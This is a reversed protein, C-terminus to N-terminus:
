AGNRFHAGLIGPWDPLPQLTSVRHMGAAAFRAFADEAADTFDLGPVVVPSCADDLLYVRGIREPAHLEIYQQLDQVSWAVCHSKAQGAVVLADFGVLHRLLAEDHLELMSGNVGESVDPGFASYRETLPHQGKLSFKPATQRAIGHFFLAEELMPVLAHGVGGLMAHYPWITLAFRGTAELRAVYHLAHAHGADPSIGLAPALNRNFGWRRAEVDEHSIVTYPAPHRGDRDVWWQPHFIQPATHTDLTAVIETIGGLHKYLFTALRVTDDVAGSGSRGGVFLEGSPLCFTNQADVLLLGVRFTDRSAPSIGTGRAVAAVKAYPVQFLSAAREPSLPFPPTM